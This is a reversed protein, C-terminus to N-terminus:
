TSGGSGFFEFGFLGAYTPSARGSSLASSLNTDLGPLPLPPITPGGGGGGGGGGPTAALARCIPNKRYRKKVAEVFAPLGESLPQWKLDTLTSPLAESRYSLDDIVVPLTFEISSPLKLAKQFAYEWELRFYREDKARQGRQVCRYYRQIL